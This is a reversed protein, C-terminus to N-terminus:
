VEVEQGEMLSIFEIGEKPLEQAPLRHSLSGRGPLFMGDHVPFAKKPKVAKAYDIAESIKMWPGAVPLALADVAFGPQYFDDGPYFLKKNIFYGTNIVEPWGPYIIAHKVGHGSIELGQHIISQGDELLTYDIGKDKLVKGVGKNTYIVVGLNNKVITEVSDLHLHDQHEHTILLIDIGEENEQGSSYAGPDTMITLGSEKIVLCCHGIKKITM